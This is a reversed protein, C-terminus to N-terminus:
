LRARRLWVLPLEEDPRISRLLGVRLGFDQSRRLSRKRKGLMEQVSNRLSRPFEGADIARRLDVAFFPQSGVDRVSTFGAQLTRAANVVGNFGGMFPTDRVDWIPDYHDARAELHTHCDILGPLVWDQSLDIVTAGAPIAAEVAPVVKAIREGEVMLVVNDRLQDGTADFLHGAKVYITAAPPAPAAGAAANQAGAPAFAAFVAALALLFHCRRSAPRSM